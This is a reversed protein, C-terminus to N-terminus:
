PLVVDFSGNSLTASVEFSDDPFAVSFTGAITSGDYSILTVNPQCAVSSSSNCSWSDPGSAEQYSIALVQGTTYCPVLSGLTLKFSGSFDNSASITVQSPGSSGEIDISTSALDTDNWALSTSSVSSSTMLSAGVNGSAAGADVGADVGADIVTGSDPGADVPFDPPIPCAALWPALGLTLFSLLPIGLLKV